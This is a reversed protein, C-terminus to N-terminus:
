GDWGSLVRLGKFFSFGEHSIGRLQLFAFIEPISISVDCWKENNYKWIEPIYKKTMIEPNKQKWNGDPQIFSYISYYKKRDQSNHVCIKTGYFNIKLITVWGVDNVM